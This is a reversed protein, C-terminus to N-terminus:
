EPTIATDNDSPEEAQMQQLRVQLEADTLPPVEGDPTIDSESETGEEGKRMDALAAAMQEETMGGSGDTPVISELLAQLEEPSAGGFDGAPIQEGSNDEEVVPVSTKNFMRYATFLVLVLLVLLLGVIIKQLM